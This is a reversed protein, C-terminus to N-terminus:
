VSYYLSEEVYAVLSTANSGTTTTTRTVVSLLSPLLWGDDSYVGLVWAASMGVLVCLLGHRVAVALVGALVANM